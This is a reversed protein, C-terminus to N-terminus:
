LMCQRLEHSGFEEVLPSHRGLLGVGELMDENLLGGILRQEPTRPLLVMLVNRLYQCRM